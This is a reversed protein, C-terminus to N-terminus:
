LLNFLKQFGGHIINRWQKMLIKKEEAKFCENQMSQICTIITQPLDTSYGRYEGYKDHYLACNYLWFTYDRVSELYEGLNWMRLGEVCRLSIMRLSEMRKNAAKQPKSKIETLLGEIKAERAQWYALFAREETARQYRYIGAYEYETDIGKLNIDNWKIIPITMNQFGQIASFQDKNLEGDRILQPMTKAVMEWDARYFYTWAKALSPVDAQNLMEKTVCHNNNLIDYQLSLQKEFDLIKKSLTDLKVHERIYRSVRRWSDGESDWFWFLGIITCCLLETAMDEKLLGYDTECLLKEYDLIYKESIRPELFRFLVDLLKSYVSDIQIKYSVGNNYGFSNSYEHKASVYDIDGKQYILMYAFIWYIHELLINEKKVENLALTCVHRLKGIRGNIYADEALNKMYDLKNLRQDKGFIVREEPYLLAGPEIFYLISSLDICELGLADLRQRIQQDGDDKNLAEKMFTSMLQPVLDDKLEPIQRYIELEDSIIDKYVPVGDNPQFNIHIIQAGLHFLKENYLKVLRYHNRLARYVMEINSANSTLSRFTVIVEQNKVGIVEKTLAHRIWHAINEVTGHRHKILVM